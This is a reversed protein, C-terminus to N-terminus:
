TGSKPNSFISGINEPEKFEKGKQFRERVGQLVISDSYRPTLGIDVLRDLEPRANHRWRIFAPFFQQLTDKLFSRSKYKFILNKLAKILQIDLNESQIAAELFSEFISLEVNNHISIKSVQRISIKKEFEFNDIGCIRLAIYTRMCKDCEGCNASPDKWCVWLNSLAIENESIKEIKARRDAEMGTHIIATSETTWLPDTLVHSGDPLINRYTLGAAIYLVDFGIIQGICILVAGFNCQRAIGFASTFYKFNTEVPILTIGLSKALHENRAIMVRWTADDMNFDFGNVLVAYDISDSHQLLSYSGDVGGSFFCAKGSRRAVPEQLRARINIHKFIPNWSCYIEQLATLNSFLLPSIFLEDSLEIDEGLLMAPILSAVVLPSADGCDHEFTKPFRFWLELGDINASILQSDEFEQHKYCSIKM